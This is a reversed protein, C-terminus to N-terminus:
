APDRGFCLLCMDDSQSRNGVFRKVDSLILEGLQKVGDAKGRLQRELRKLGYLENEMNMAESFGDTFLALGEGPGLKLSFQEYPFDAAVGLPV